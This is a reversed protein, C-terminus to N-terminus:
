FTLTAICLAAAECQLQTNKEEDGVAAVLAAPTPTQKMAGRIKERTATM